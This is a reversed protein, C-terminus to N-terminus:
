PQLVLASLVAAVPTRSRSGANDNWTVEGVEYFRMNEDIRLRSDECSGNSGDNPVEGDVGSHMAREGITPSECASTMWLHARQTREPVASGRYLHSERVQKASLVIVVCQLM